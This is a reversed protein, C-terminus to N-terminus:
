KNELHTCLFQFLANLKKSLAKCEKKKQMLFFILDTCFSRLKKYEDSDSIEELPISGDKIKSQVADLIGQVKDSFKNKLSEFFQRSEKDLFEKRMEEIDDFFFLLSDRVNELSNQEMKELM